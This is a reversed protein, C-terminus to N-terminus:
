NQRFFSDVVVVGFDFGAVKAEKYDDNETRLITKQVNM